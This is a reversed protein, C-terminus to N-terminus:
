SNHIEYHRKINKFSEVPKEVNWVGGLVGIGQFGLALTKEITDTNIGGMGIITKDINNVDFGRGEYGKKSISSFVPSLLHYDFEIDCNELASPEHFSSSMTKGIMDLGIFYENGNDLADIRKQEQFHIGKLNFENILEHFYHTVIRDHYKEDIQNLYAVHEEYNKDPKRFHYYELGEEFLQQLIEIENPIDKEPAILVIM